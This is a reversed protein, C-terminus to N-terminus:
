IYIAGEYVWISFKHVKTFVNEYLFLLLENIRWYTASDYLM